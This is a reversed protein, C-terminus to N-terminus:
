SGKCKISVRSWRLLISRILLLIMLLIPIRVRRRPVHRCSSVLRGRRRAVMTVRAMILMRLSKKHFRVITPSNKRFLTLVHMQRRRFTVSRLFELVFRRGVAVVRLALRSPLLRSVMALLLMIFLLLIVLSSVVRSTVRVVRRRRRTVIARRLLHWILTRIKVLVLRDRILRPLLRRFTGLLSVMRKRTRSRLLRRRIVMRRIVRKMRLLAVISTAMLFLALVIIRKRRRNLRSNRIFLVVTRILIRVMLSIMLTLATLARSLLRSVFLLLFLVMLVIRLPKRGERIRTLLLRRITLTIMQWWSRFRRVVQKALRLFLCYRFAM